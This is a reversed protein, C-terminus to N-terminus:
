TMKSFVLEFVTKLIREDGDATTSFTFNFITRVIQEVTEVIRFFSQGEQVSYFINFHRYEFLSEFNVLMKSKPPVEKSLLLFM